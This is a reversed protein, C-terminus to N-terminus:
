GAGGRRVRRLRRWSGLLRALLVATCAMLGVDVWRWPGGYRWLYVLGVAWVLGAITFLVAIRARFWVERRRYGTSV